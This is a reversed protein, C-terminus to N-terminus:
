LPPPTGANTGSGPSATVRAAIGSLGTRATHGHMKTLRTRFVANAGVSAAKARLMKLADDGDGVADVSIPGVLAHPGHPPGAYVRVTEAPVPKYVKGGTQVVHAQMSGCGALLLITACVLARSDFVPM